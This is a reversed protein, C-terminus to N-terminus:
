IDGPFNMAITCKRSGRNGIQMILAEIERQVLAPTM